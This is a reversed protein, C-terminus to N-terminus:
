MLALCLCNVELVASFRDNDSKATDLLQLCDDLCIQSSEKRKKEAHAAYMIASYVFCKDIVYDIVLNHLDKPLSFVLVPM